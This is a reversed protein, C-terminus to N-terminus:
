KLKTVYLFQATLFVRLFIAKLDSKKFNSAQSVTVLAISCGTISEDM